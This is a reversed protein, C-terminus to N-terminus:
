NAPGSEPSPVAPVAGEGGGSEENHAGANIEGEGNIDDVGELLKWGEWLLNVVVTSLMTDTKALMAQGGPTTHAAIWRQVSMFAYWSTLLAETPNGFAQVNQNAIALASAITKEREDQPEGGNLLRQFVKKFDEMSLPVGQLNVINGTM